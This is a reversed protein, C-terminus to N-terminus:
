AAGGAARLAKWDQAIHWMTWCNPCPNEGDFLSCWSENGDECPPCGICEIETAKHMDWVKALQARSAEEVAREMNGSGDTYDPDLEHGRGGFSPEYHKSAIAEREDKSLLMDNM